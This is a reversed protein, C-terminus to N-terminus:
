NSLGKIRALVFLCAVFFESHVALGAHIYCISEILLSQTTWQVQKAKEAIIKPLEEKAEGTSSWLCLLFYELLSPFSNLPNSLFYSIDWM